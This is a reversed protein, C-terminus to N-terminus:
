MKKSWNKLRHKKMSILLWKTLKLVTMRSEVEKLVTYKEKNLNISGSDQFKTGFIARSSKNLNM